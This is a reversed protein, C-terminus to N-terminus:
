VKYISQIRSETVYKRIIEIEHPNGSFNSLPVGAADLCFAYVGAMECFKDQWSQMEGAYKLTLSGLAGSVSSSSGKNTTIKTDMDNLTEQM